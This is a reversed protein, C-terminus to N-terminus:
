SQPGASNNATSMTAQNEAWHVDGPMLQFDSTNKVNALVFKVAKADPIVVLMVPVEFPLEAISVQHSTGDSPVSSEGDVRYSEKMMATGETFPVPKLFRSDGDEEPRGTPSKGTGSEQCPWDSWITTVPIDARSTHVLLPLHTFRTLVRRVCRNRRSLLVEVGSTLLKTIASQCIDDLPSYLHCHVTIM